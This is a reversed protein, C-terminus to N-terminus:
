PKSPAPALLPLVVTTPLLVSGPRLEGPFTAVVAEAHDHQDGDAHQDELRCSAVGDASTRAACISHPARNFHIAVNALPGAASTAHVSVIDADASQTVSARMVVSRWPLADPFGAAARERLEALAQLVQAHSLGDRVADCPTGGLSYRAQPEQQLVLAYLQELAAMDKDAGDVGNCAQPLRQVSVQLDTGQRVQLLRAVPLAAADETKRALITTTQAGAPSIAVVFNLDRRTM